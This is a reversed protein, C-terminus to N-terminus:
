WPPPPGPRNTKEWAESRAQDFDRMSLIILAFLLGAIMLLALLYSRWRVPLREALLPSEVFRPSKYPNEEM